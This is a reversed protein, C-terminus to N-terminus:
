LKHKNKLYEVRLATVKYFSEIEEMTCKKLLEELMEMTKIRDYARHIRNVEMGEQTPVFYVWKKNGDKQIRTILGKEELKKMMKSVTGKTRCTFEALHTVTTEEHDCIYGLTHAEVETMLYGNGYDHVESSYDEQLAGHRYVADVKDNLEQIFWSLGSSGQNENNDEKM